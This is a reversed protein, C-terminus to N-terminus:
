CLLNNLFTHVITDYTDLNLHQYSKYLYIYLCMYAQGKEQIHTPPPMTWLALSMPDLNWRLFAVSSSSSSPHPLHM